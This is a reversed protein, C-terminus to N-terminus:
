VNCRVEEGPVPVWDTPGGPAWTIPGYNIDLRESRGGYLGVMTDYLLDPDVSVSWHARKLVDLCDSHFPFVATM